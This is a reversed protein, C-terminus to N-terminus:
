NDRLEALLQIVSARWTRRKALAERMEQAQRFSSKRDWLMGEIARAWTQSEDTDDWAPQVIIRGAQEPDVSERLLEALGSHATILAPTGAVIAELGVLGFGETRSPMLFLSTRILDRELRETDTTFPRAIVDLSPIGSWEILSRRDGAASGQPSGRVVLELRPADARRRRVVHGVARAAVDVGKIEFDEVRGALLLRWPNGPPEVRVDTDRADFGPDFRILRASSDPFLETLYRNYLRPGVAAALGASRALEFETQTRNEARAGTDGEREKLWELEDPAVHIFQLRKAAPWHDCQSCAAPGTVRGHGVIVDPVFDGPLPAKRVLGQDATMGPPMEAVILTVGLAGAAAMDGTSAEPVLCAVRAGSAALAACLERNFTSIGGHSSTWETAVALIAMGEGEGSKAAARDRPQHQPLVPGGYQPRRVVKDLGSVTQPLVPFVWSPMALDELHHDWESLMAALIGGLTLPAPRGLYRSAFDAATQVDDNRVAIMAALWDSARWRRPRFTFSDLAAQAKGLQGTGFLALAQQLAFLPSEPYRRRGITASEAAGAWDGGHARRFVEWIMLQEDTKETSRGESRERLWEEIPSFLGPDDEATAITIAEQILRYWSDDCISAGILFKEIAEAPRREILLLVALKQHIVFLSKGEDVNAIARPAAGIAAEVGDVEEVLQLWLLWPAHFDQGETGRTAHSLAESLDYPTGRHRLLKALQYEVAPAGPEQLYIQLLSIRSDLEESNLPRPAQWGYQRELYGGLSRAVEQLTDFEGAEALHYRAGALQHTITADDAPNGGPQILPQAFWQGARRHAVKWAEPDARLKPGDIERVLPYILFRNSINELLYRARLSEILVHVDGMPEGIEHLLDRTAPERLISLHRLFDRAPTTLSEKAKELLSIEVGRVLRDEDPAMPGEAEPPLVEDLSYQRLLHGLLRLARPNAGLRRSVESRRAPVFRQEADSLGISELVIAEVDVLSDPARLEFTPFPETWVPDLTRNLVLWLCGTGQPRQALTRLATKFPEVPEAASPDLLRQFEDLVILGGARLVLRSALAFSPERRCEEALAPSGSEILGLILLAKLEQQIDTSDLPVDLHVAPRGQALARNISPRVIQETKGVGSMGTLVAASRGESQWADWLRTAIQKREEGQIAFQEQM